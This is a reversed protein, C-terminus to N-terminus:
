LTVVKDAKQICEMMDYMNSITGIQLVNKLDYFSLCTGCVLIECGKEQLGKLHDVIQADLAPLKVGNNM